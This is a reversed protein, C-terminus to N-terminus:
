VPRLKPLLRYLEGNMWLGPCLPFTVHNSHVVAEVGHGQFLQRLINNVYNTSGEIRHIGM